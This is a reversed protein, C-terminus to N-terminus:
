QKFQEITQIFPESPLDYTEVIRLANNISDPTCKDFINIINKVVCLALSYPKMHAGAEDVRNSFRISDVLESELNWQEFIRATIEENDFGVYEKELASLESPIQIGKVSERFRDASGREIVENAVDAIDPM